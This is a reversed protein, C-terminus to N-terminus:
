LATPVVRSISQPVPLDSVTPPALLVSVTLPVQEFAFMPPVSLL